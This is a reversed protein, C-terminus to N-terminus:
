DTNYLAVTFPPSKAISELGTPIVVDCCSIILNYPVEKNSFYIREVLQKDEKLILKRKKNHIGFDLHFPTYDNPLGIIIDRFKNCVNLIPLAEPNPPCVVFLLKFAISNFKSGIIKDKKREGKNNTQHIYGSPHFSIKNEDFSQSTFKTFDITNDFVGNNGMPKEGKKRYIHFYISGDNGFWFSLLKYKKGKYELVIRPIYEKSM